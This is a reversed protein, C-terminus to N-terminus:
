PGMLCWCQENCHYYQIATGIKAALSVERCTAVSNDHQALLQRRVSQVPWGAARPPLTHNDREAGGALVVATMAHCISILPCSILMSHLRAARSTLIAPVNALSARFASLQTPHLGLSGGNHQPLTRVTSLLNAPVHRMAMIYICGSVICSCYLQVSQGVSRGRVFGWGLHSSYYLEPV